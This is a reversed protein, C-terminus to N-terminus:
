LIDKVSTVIARKKKKMEAHMKKCFDNILTKSEEPMKNESFAHLHDAAIRQDNYDGITAAVQEYQKLPFDRVLKYAPKWDTKAIAMVYIMDKLHKRVQHVDSDRLPQRRVTDAISELQLYLFGPLMEKELQNGKYPIKGPLKKLAKKSYYKAWDKKLLKVENQLKNIYVHIAMNKSAIMDMELQRDRIAGATHYLRKIRKPL